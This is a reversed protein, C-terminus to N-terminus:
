QPEGGTRCHNSTGVAGSAFGLVSGVAGYVAANMPALMLFIGMPPPDFTERVIYVPCLLFTWLSGSLNWEHPTFFFGVTVLYAVVAFGGFMRLPLSFLSAKDQVRCVRATWAAPFIAVLVNVVGALGLVVTFIVWESQRPLDSGRLMAYLVAVAASALGGLFFLIRATINVGRGAM